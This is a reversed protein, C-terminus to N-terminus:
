KANQLQDNSSDDNMIFLIKFEFDFVNSEGLFGFLFFAFYKSDSGLIFHL